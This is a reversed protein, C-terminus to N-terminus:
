KPKRFRLTMRDSEGIAVFKEREVDGKRLNPPLTWVGDPYNATDRPNANIESSSELVFGAQEALALVTSVKVYGSKKEEASDRSEPLRHDVVGLVGGPKLINFFRKFSAEATGAMVFNHVNRFTLVTDATGAPISAPDAWNVLKAKDFQAPSAAFKAALADYGRGAPQAAYYTGGGQKIAPALIEAYWGGGPNYEIVIKNAKVGFFALTAAPNRYKDRAVNAPTRATSAIAAAIAKDPKSAKQTGAKHSEMKGSHNDAFAPAMPLAILCTLMASRSFPRMHADKAPKPM